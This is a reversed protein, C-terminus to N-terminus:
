SPMRFATEGCTLFLQLMECKVNSNKKADVWMWATNKYTTTWNKNKQTEYDSDSIVVNTIQFPHVGGLKEYNTLVIIEAVNNDPVELFNGLLSYNTSGWERSPILTTPIATM